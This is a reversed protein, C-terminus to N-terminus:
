KEPKSAIIFMMRLKSSIPEDNVSGYGAIDVFGIKRFINLLEHYSYMRIDVFIEKEKEKGLFIWKGRSTSTAFDFYREELVKMNNVEYWTTTTYNVMIWDRNIVHLIFKGGSKLAQYIKKLTLINDSDKEFFGFSTWLNGAAHFENKFDIRRMDSHVTTIKLNNKQAKNKLEALYSETIDVGTVKIGKQAMPLSIRGIGCPCDLFKQGVKLNLKKIIYNTESKTEEATIKDFLPRFLPFFDDWWGSDIKSM